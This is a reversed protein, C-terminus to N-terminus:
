INEIQRNKLKKCDSVGMALSRSLSIGATKTAFFSRSCTMLRCWLACTRFHNLYVLQWADLPNSSSVLRPNLDEFMIPSKLFRPEFLSLKFKVLWSEQSSVKLWCGQWTPHELEWSQVRISSRTGSTNNIINIRSLLSHSPHFYTISTDIKPVADWLLEVLAM